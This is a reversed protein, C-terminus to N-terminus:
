DESVTKAPFTITVGDASLFQYCDTRTASLSFGDSHLCYELWLGGILAILQRTISDVGPQVDTTALLQQLVVKIRDEYRKDQLM